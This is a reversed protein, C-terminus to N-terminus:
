EDDVGRVINTKLNLKKVSKIKSSTQTQASNHHLVYNLSSVYM